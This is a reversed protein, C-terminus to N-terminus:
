IRPGLLQKLEALRAPKQLYHDFGLDRWENERLTSGSLCIFRCRELQQRRKLEVVVEAGSMGPLGLDLVITDFRDCDAAALAESGNGATAVAHGSAELLMKLMACTDESDDVLLVKFGDDAADACPEAPSGSSAAWQVRREKLQVRTIEQTYRAITDVLVERDLPKSLYADCGAELCKREDDQMANATLAVIPGDFGLRRMETAAAYGDLVPMQM